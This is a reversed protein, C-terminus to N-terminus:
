SKERLMRILIREADKIDENQDPTSKKGFSAILIKEAMEYFYVRLATPSYVRLEYVKINDKVNSPTVDKIKQNDPLFSPTSNRNKALTFLDIISQQENRQLKDFQKKFTPSCQANLLEKLQEFLNMENFIETEIYARIFGANHEFQSQNEECFLNKIVLVDNDNNKNFIKLDNDKLEKHLAVSFLLGKAYATQPSYIAKIEQGEISFIYDQELLKEDIICFNEIPYKTFYSYAMKRLSEEKLEDIAQALSFGGLLLETSLKETVISKEIKLEEDDLLTKYAILTQSFYINFLTINTCPLLLESNFFFTYM